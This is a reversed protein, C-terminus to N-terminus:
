AVGATLWGLVEETRAVRAGHQRMEDMVQQKDPLNLQHALSSPLSSVADETVVLQLGPIASLLSLGGARVCVEAIKGGLILMLQGGNQAVRQRLLGLFAENTVVTGQPNGDELVERRTVDYLNKHVEFLRESDGTAPGEFEDVPLVRRKRGERAELKQLTQELPPNLDSDGDFSTAHEGYIAFEDAARNDVVTQQGTQIPTGVPNHWDKTVIVTGGAEFVAEALRSNNHIESAEDGEPQSALTALKSSKAQAGFAKQIDIGLYVVSSAKLM